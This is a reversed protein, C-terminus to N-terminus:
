NDALELIAMMSCAILGFARQRFNGRFPGAMNKRFLATNSTDTSSVSALFSFTTEGKARNASCIQVNISASDDDDLDIESRLNNPAEALCVPADSQVYSIYDRM